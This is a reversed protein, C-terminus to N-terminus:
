FHESFLLKLSISRSEKIELFNLQFSRERKGEKGPVRGWCVMGAKKRLLDFIGWFVGRVCDIYFGREVLTTLLTSVISLCEAHIGKKTRVSQAIM